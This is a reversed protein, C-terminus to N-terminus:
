TEGPPSKPAKSTSKPQLAMRSFGGRLDGAWGQPVLHRATWQKPESSRERFPFFNDKKTNLAGFDTEGGPSEMDREAQKGRCCKTSEWWIGHQNTGKGGGGAKIRALQRIRVRRDEVKHLVEGRPQPAAPLRQPPDHSSPHPNPHLNPHLWPPLVPQQQGLLRQALWQPSHSPSLGVPCLFPLAVWIM